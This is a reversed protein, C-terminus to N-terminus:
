EIQRNQFQDFGPQHWPRRDQSFICEVLVIEPIQVIRCVPIHALGQRQIVAAAVCESDPDSSAFRCRAHARCAREHGGYMSHSISRRPLTNELCRPVVRVVDEGDPLIQEPADAQPFVHHGQGNWLVRDTLPKQVVSSESMALYRCM